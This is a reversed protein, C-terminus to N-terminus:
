QQLSKVREQSFCSHGAHIPIPIVFSGPVKNKLGEMLFQCRWIMLSNQADLM